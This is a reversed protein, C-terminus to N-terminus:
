LKPDQSFQIGGARSEAIKDNGVAVLEVFNMLIRGLEEFLSRAVLFATCAHSDVGGHGHALVCSFSCWSLDLLAVCRWAPFTGQFSDYGLLQFVWDDLFVSSFILFHCSRFHHLGPLVALCSVLFVM